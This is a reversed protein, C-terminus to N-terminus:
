NFTKNDEPEPFAEFKDTPNLKYIVQNHRFYLLDNKKFIGIFEEPKIGYFVLTNRILKYGKFNVPSSWFEIRYQNGPHRYGEQLERIMSDTTLKETKIKDPNTAEILRVDILEDRKIPINEEDELESFIESSDSPLSSLSDTSSQRNQNSKDRIGANTETKKNNIKSFETIERSITNNGTPNTTENQTNLIRQGLYFLLIGTFIGALYVLITSYSFKM